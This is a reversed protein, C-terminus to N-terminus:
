ISLGMKKRTWRGPKTAVKESRIRRSRRDQRNEFYFRQGLVSDEIIRIM